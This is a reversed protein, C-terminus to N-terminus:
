GTIFVTLSLQVFKWFCYTVSRLFNRIAEQFQILSNDHHQPPFGHAIENDIRARDAAPILAM